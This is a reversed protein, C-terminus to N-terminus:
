VCECDSALKSCLSNLMRLGFVICMHTKETYKPGRFELFPLRQHSFDLCFKFFGKFVPQISLYSKLKIPGTLHKGTRSGLSCQCHQTMLLFEFSGVMLRFLRTKKAAPTYFRQLILCVSPASSDRKQLWTTPLLPNTPQYYLYFGRGKKITIFLSAHSM